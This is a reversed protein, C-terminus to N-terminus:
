SHGDIFDAVLKEIEETMHLIHKSTWTGEKETIKAMWQMKLSQRDFINEWERYKSTPSLNSFKSNQSDTILALNGISHLIHDPLASQNLDENPHQPYWHEISRRYTFRFRHSEFFLEKLFERQTWLIYDIFNLAFVPLGLDYSKIKKSCDDTFIRSKAYNIALAELKELFLSAFEPKNLNEIEQYLFCMVDYLWRSDRNSPFTVAFLAQAQLIKRNMPNPFTNNSFHAEVYYESGRGRKQYEYYTAKQLFWDDKRRNSGEENANRIIFHDFIHRLQLLVISFQRVWASDKNEIQFLKLLKKDDLQIDSPDTHEFIGLAYILLIEFPILTRYSQSSRYAAESNELRNEPENLLTLLSKKHYDESIIHEYPNNLSYHDFSWNFIAEREQFAEKRKTRMKFATTVPAEMNACAEWIKAFKSADVQDLKSMMQAKIIEHAELQEGRSNFREFYLNLELNEPLITQFLIVHSLLYEVFDSKVEIKQLAIKANLYGRSIEDLESPIQKNLLQQLSANSKKRASFTIPIQTLLPHNFENQLVLAILTLATSRQQGDIINLQSDIVLTGIYYNKKRERRADDIDLILQEIESYTWSFNRQYLPIRYTHSYLNQITIQQHNNQM